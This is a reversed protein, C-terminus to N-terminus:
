TNNHLVVTKLLEEVTRIHDTLGSDPHGRRKLTQFVEISALTETKEIGRAARLRSDMDIM